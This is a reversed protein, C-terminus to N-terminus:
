VPVEYGGGVLLQEKKGVWHHYPSHFDPSGWREELSSPDESMHVLPPSFTDSQGRHGAPPQADVPSGMITWVRM